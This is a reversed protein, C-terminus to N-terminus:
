VFFVVAGLLCCFCVARLFRSADRRMWPLAVIVILLEAFLTQYASELLLFGTPSEILPFLGIYPVPRGFLWGYLAVDMEILAADHLRASLHPILLYNFNCVTGLVLALTILSAVTSGSFGRPLQRFDALLFGSFLLFIVLRHEGLRPMCWLILLGLTLGLAPLARRATLRANLFLVTRTLAYAYPVGVAAVAFLFKWPRAVDIGTATTCAVSLSFPILLFSCLQWIRQERPAAIILDRLVTM